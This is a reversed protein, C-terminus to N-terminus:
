EIRSSAADAAAAAAESFASNAEYFTDANIDPCGGEVSGNPEGSDGRSRSSSSSGGSSFAINTRVSRGNLDQIPRTNPELPSTPMTKEGRMLRRLGALERRGLYVPRNMIVWTVAEWCGPQTLSGEYTMYAETSPLLEGLSVSNVPVNQGRHLVQFCVVLQQLHLLLSLTFNSAAANAM